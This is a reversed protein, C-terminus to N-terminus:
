DRSSQVITLIYLFINIVDIYLNLAAFVYEEPSLSYKHKGGLMLQTDFVLYLGFVLAGMSAYAITAVESRVFSLVIGFGILSLLLVLLVGGCATFDWKSQLAFITLGATIVLTVGAAILVADSDYTSTVAGLFVAEFLTFVALCIINTPWKRRVSECCSIIISFVLVGGLSVGWVWSGHSIMYDKCAPVYLLLAIIGATSLLQLTLIAYVKRIFGLRITKENFEFVTREGVLSEEDMETELPFINYSREQLLSWLYVSQSIKAWKTHFNADTKPRGRVM